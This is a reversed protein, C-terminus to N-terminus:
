DVLEVLAIRAGLTEQLPLLLSGDEFTEAKIGQQELQKRAQEVSKVAFHLTIPGAGIEDLTSQALETSGTAFLNITSTGVRLQARKGAPDRSVEELGLQTKYLHLGSELDRVAVDISFWCTAGNPHKGPKDWTLRQEDPADWEIIFPWPRRYSVGEPVLLRWQLLHGDPRLREMPFPGSAELGTQQFRAAEQEITETALAYAALAGARKQLLDQLTTGRPGSATVEDQDYISILEIYDLGFRILANYTGLGTHRGGPDVEFGLRRYLSIAEDLDRVAIVAHDFRTVM